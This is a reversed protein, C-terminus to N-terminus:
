IQEMSVCEVILSSVTIFFTSLYHYKRLIDIKDYWVFRELYYRRERQITEHVLGLYADGIPIPSCSGKFAGFYHKHSSQHYIDCQIKGTNSEPISPIKLIIYPEHHYIIYLIDDQIYPLWNKEHHFEGNPGILLYKRRVHVLESDLQCLVMKLICCRDDLLYRYVM